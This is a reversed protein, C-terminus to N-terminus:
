EPGERRVRGPDDRPTVEVNGFEAMPDEEEDDDLSEEEGLSPEGGIKEMHDLATGLARQVDEYGPEAEVIGSLEILGQYIDKWLRQPEGGLDTGEDDEKLIRSGPDRQLMGIVTSHRLNDAEGGAVRRM